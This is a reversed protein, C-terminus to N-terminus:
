WLDCQITATRSLKRVTDHRKYFPVHFQSHQGAFYFYRVGGGAVMRTGQADDSPRLTAHVRDLFLQKGLKTMHGTRCSLSSLTGRMVRNLGDVLAQSM